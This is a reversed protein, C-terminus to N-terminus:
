RSVLKMGPRVKVPGSSKLVWSWSQNCTAFRRWCRLIWARGASRQSASRAAM